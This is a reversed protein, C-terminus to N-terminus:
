RRIIRGTSRGTVETRNTMLSPVLGSPGHANLLGAEASWTVRPARRRPVPVTARPQAKGSVGAGPMTATFVAAAPAATTTNSNARATWTLGLGSTDTIAIGLAGSSTNADASVLAVLVSGAPPTFAATTGTLAGSGQVSVVAPSSGDVAPTSGGSPPVEYVAWATTQGTPASSGVTVPTGSTVTGSYYGDAGCAGNASNTINNYFTNSAAATFATSSTDDEIAFVPLSHSFNPTISAQATAAGRSAASTGSAETAGTLVKVQLTLDDNTAGTGSLTVKVTFSM